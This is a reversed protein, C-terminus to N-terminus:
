PESHLDSEIEEDYEKPSVTNVDDIFQGDSEREVIDKVQEIQQESDRKSKLQQLLRLFSADSSDVLAEYHERPIILGVCM